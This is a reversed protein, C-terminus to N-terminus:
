RSGMKFESGKVKGKCWEQLITRLDPEGIEQLEYGVRVFPHKINMVRNLDIPTGIIVLDCECANITAELDKIQGPGYGMAPLVKGLHPYNEFTEVLEGKLYPRPDVIEGAGYKLAAMMGSGFPLGGHTMTPGDGVVLVRKGKIMEHGNVKLPSAGEIVTAKPNIDLINKRITLVDERNATDIKNIIIVGARRFNVEGPYYEMEHQPRHADLVVIELDSHFFPYDNNGGDWLIIDAEVEAKRLIDGYDVGAYVVAGMELYPEYEEREEITCHHTDLDNMRAYRQVRQKELDGYPMPHRVSVVSIGMDTLIKVIKRSTQSKGCGTRTACVSIVPKNSKLMTQDPGLFTFSAGAAVVRSAKHMTEQHSLDSYSFVVMDVKHNKILSELEFEPRIPIGQPYFEGALTSPYQRKEIHPIQYATFAVVKFRSNNRFYTNFNHFDRGAAGMIIVKQQPSQEKLQNM